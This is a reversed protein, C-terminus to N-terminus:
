KNLEALTLPGVNGTTPIGHAKQFARVGALTRLGFFATSPKVMHGDRILREQLERVEENNDWLKMFQTFVFKEAGLVEGVSPTETIATPTTPIVTCTRSGDATYGVPVTAQIGTLNRCRDISGGSSGSRSGSNTSVTAPIINSITVTESTTNGATDTAIFTFSGNTTFVHTTENLTAEEENTTATVTVPGTTPATNYSDITIVPNTTDINEVLVNFTAQNGAIDTAIFDFSGNETFTHSTANLTGPEDISATATVNQNTPSTESVQVDIMPATRDINTIPDIQEFGMTGSNDVVTFRYPVLTNSTFTHSLSYLGTTEDFVDEDPASQIFPSTSTATVTLSQVPTEADFPIVNIFPTLYVTNSEEQDGIVEAHVKTTLTFVSVMIVLSLTKILINKM